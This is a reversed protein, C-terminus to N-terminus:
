GGLSTQRSYLAAGGPEGTSARTPLPTVNSLPPRDILVLSFISVIFHSMAPAAVTAMQNVPTLTGYYEVRVHDVLGTHAHGTRVAALERELAEVSKKMRDESDALLEDIM